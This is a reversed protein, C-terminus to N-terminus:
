SSKINKLLEVYPYSEYGVVNVIKAETSLSLKQINDVLDILDVPQCESKTWAPCVMLPLRKVLKVMM